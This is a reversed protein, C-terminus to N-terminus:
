FKQECTLQGLLEFQTLGTSPQEQLAPKLPDTFKVLMEGKNKLEVQVGTGHGVPVLPLLTELPHIQLRGLIPLIVAVM